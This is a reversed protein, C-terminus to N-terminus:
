NLIKAGRPLVPEGRPHMSNRAPIGQVVLGKLGEEMHKETLQEMRSVKEVREEKVKGSKKRKKDDKKGDKKDKKKKREDKKREKNEEKSEEKKEKYRIRVRVVIQFEGCHKKRAHDLIKSICVHIVM